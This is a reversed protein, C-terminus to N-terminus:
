IREEDGSAEVGTLYSLNDVALSLGLTTWVLVAIEQDGLSWETLGHLM